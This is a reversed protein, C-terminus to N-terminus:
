KTAGKLKYGILKRKTYRKQLVQIISNLYNIEDLLAQIEQEKKILLDVLVETTTEM